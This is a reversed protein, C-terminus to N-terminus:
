HKFLSPADPPREAQQGTTAQAQVAAPRETEAPPPLVWSFGKEIGIIAMTERSKPPAVAALAARLFQVADAALLKSSDGELLRSAVLAMQADSTRIKELRPDKQRLLDLLTPPANEPPYNFEVLTKPQGKEPPWFQLYAPKLVRTDWFDGKQQEQKMGYTLQWVEPGYGGQYDAMILEAFPENTPLNVKAQLGKAIQNLREQLGQGTAEIDSAEEGGQSQVLHPTTPALRSNLHPLEKDLRAIQQQSSPSFWDVPGLIIGVRSSQIEVPVPPRTEVEIPNEVTGILIADKLVAIVVRGAALNAVVEQGSPQFPQQASIQPILVALLLLTAIPGATKKSCFLCRMRKGYWVSAVETQIHAM